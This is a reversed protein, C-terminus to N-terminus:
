RIIGSLRKLPDDIAEANYKFNVEIRTGEDPESEIRLEGGLHAAREKMITLGLHKGPHDSPTPTEFGIGDNEILIHHEGKENCRFM